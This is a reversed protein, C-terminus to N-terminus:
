KKLVKQNRIMSDIQKAVVPTVDDFKNPWEGFKREQWEFEIYRDSFYYSDIFTTDLIKDFYSISMKIYYASFKKYRPFQIASKAQGKSIANQFITTDAFILEAGSLNTLTEQLYGAAKCGIIENIITVREAPRV